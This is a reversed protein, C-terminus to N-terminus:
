IYCHTCMLGLSGLKGEGWGGRSTVMLENELDLLKTKNQIFENTNNKLSEVYLHYWLINDKESKSWEERSGDMNSWIVNNQEKKIASYYKMTSIYSM